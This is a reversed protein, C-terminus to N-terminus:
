KKKCNNCEKIQKQLERRQSCGIGCVHSVTKHEALQTQHLSCEEVIKQGLKIVNRGSKSAKQFRERELCKIKGKKTIILLFKETPEEKAPLVSTFCEQNQLTSKGKRTFYEEDLNTIKNAAFLYFNLIYL